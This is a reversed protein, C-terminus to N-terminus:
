RSAAQADIVAQQLFLRANFLDHNRVADRAAEVDRRAQGSLSAEAEKIAEDVDSSGAALAQQAALLRAVVRDFQARREAALREAEQRRKEADTIQSRLEDLQRSIKELQKQQERQQAVQKELLSTRARLDEVERRFEEVPPDTRASIGADPPEATSAGADSQAGRLSLRSPPEAAAEHSTSVGGDRRLRTRPRGGDTGGDKASASAQGNTVLLASLITAHIAIVKM